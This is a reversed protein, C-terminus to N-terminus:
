FGILPALERQERNAIPTGIVVDKSNGHRSLLLSLAGHLLMFPTIKFQQAMKLLAQALEKPLVGTVRAGQYQKQAPRAKDLPLSHLAPL